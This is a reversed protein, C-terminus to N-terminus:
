VLATRPPRDPGDTLFGVEGISLLTAPAIVPPLAAFSLPATLLAVGICCSACVSCKSAVPDAHSHDAAADNSHVHAAADGPSGEPIATASGQPHNPGCGLMTTAAYGQFPLAFLLLCM